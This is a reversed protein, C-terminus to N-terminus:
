IYKSMKKGNGCWWSEGVDRGGAGWMLERGRREKNWAQKRM